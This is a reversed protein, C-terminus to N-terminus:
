FEFETFFLSGDYGSQNLALYHDVGAEDTYKVGSNPVADPIMPMDACLPEAATLEELKYVEEVDYTVNGEDDIDELTLNLLTFDYVRAFGSPGFVVQVTDPEGSIYEIFEGDLDALVDEAWDARVIFGEDEMTTDLNKDLAYDLFDKVEIVEILNELAEGNTVFDLESIEEDMGDEGWIGTTNHYFFMDEFDEAPEEPDLYSFYYDLPKLELGDESLEYTGYIAYAAGGSGINYIRGDGLLAYADRATGEIVLQPEDDSITYMALINRGEHSENDYANTACILLEPIDDGNLDKMTYGVSMLAEIRVDLWNTSEWIGMTGDDFEYTSPDCMITDYMLRLVPDYIEEYDPSSDGAPAAAGGGCAATMFAMLCVLLLIATKRAMTKRRNTKM